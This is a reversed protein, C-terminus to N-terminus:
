KYRALSISQLSYKFYCSSNQFAVAHIVKLLKSYLMILIIKALKFLDIRFLFLFFFYPIQPSVTLFLDQQFVTKIVLIFFKWTYM